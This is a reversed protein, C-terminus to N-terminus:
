PPAPTRPAPLSQGDGWATLWVSGVMSAGAALQRSVTPALEAAMAAEYPDSGPRHRARAMQDARLIVGVQAYSNQMADLIADWPDRIPAARQLSRRIATAYRALHADVLADEFRKHLGPAGSLQGDYNATLHLPQYADAVYHGLYAAERVVRRDDGASIADRLQRQFGVIVWPLVGNDEVRRRGFRRVADDYARPFDRLPLAGYNDLDIFHRIAETRGERVRLVSDPEVSREGLMDIHPAFYARAESPLTEVALRNIFRHTKDGWAHAPVPLGLAVACIMAVPLRVRRRPSAALKPMSSCLGRFITIRSDM